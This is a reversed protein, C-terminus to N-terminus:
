YNPFIDILSTDHDHPGNSPMQPLADFRRQVAIPHNHEVAGPLRALGRQGAEQGGFAAAGVRREVVIGRPLRRQGVRAAEQEVLAMGEHDVLDLQASVPEHPASM